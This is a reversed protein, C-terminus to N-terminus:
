KELLFKVIDNTSEVEKDIFIIHGCNPYRILTSQSNLALFNDLTMYEPALWIDNMGWLHLVPCKINTITNEGKSYASDESSMNIRSIAWDADILNKQKLAELTNVKAEEPDPKVLYMAGFALGMAEFDQNKQATLLPLVQVPDTGMEEPSQYIQGLMPQMNADKKYVPYGKHTTSAVLVLKEVKDPYHAAMEMVVGGGLSWGLVFAKSVNLAELFLNLDDALEKLSTIRHHYTSDGFGRMDPALIHFHPSLNKIARAFQKGSSFNGHVLLLTKNNKDGQEIYSLTEDNSLKITKKTLNLM